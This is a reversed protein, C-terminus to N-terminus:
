ALRKKFVAPVGAVLSNPLVDRTVVSGAAVISGAGITVGGLIRTGAGIWCGDEITVRRATGAGARRSADGILHSGTILEVGPGLDCCNGITIPAELHSHIVVGPSLWTDHGIKLQGRGYVWGRGCVSSGEGVDVRALRLCARRFAFMRSPPLLWLLINLCHRLVATSEQEVRVNWRRLNEHITVPHTAIDNARSRQCLASATRAGFQSM